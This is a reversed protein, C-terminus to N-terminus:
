LFFSQLFYFYINKLCCILFNLIQRIMRILLHKLRRRVWDMKLKISGEGYLKRMNKLRGDSKQVRM